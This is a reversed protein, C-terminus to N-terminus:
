VAFAPAASQGPRDVLRLVYLNSLTRPFVSIVSNMSMM